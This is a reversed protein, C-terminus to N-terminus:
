TGGGKRMFGAYGSASLPNVPQWGRSGWGKVLFESDEGYLRFPTTAPSKTAFKFNWIKGKKPLFPVYVRKKVGGTSAIEYVDGTASAAGTSIIIGAQEDAQVTLQVIDTSRLSIFAGKYYHWGPLGNSTPPIEWNRLAEEDERYMLTLNYLIARQNQVNVEYSKTESFTTAINHLTRQRGAATITVAQGGVTVVPATGNEWPEVHLDLLVSSFEKFTTPIGMSLESTIVKFYPVLTTAAGTKDVYKRVPIGFAPSLVGISGWTQVTGSMGNMLCWLYEETGSSDALFATIEATGDDFALYSWTQKVPSYCFARRTQYTGKNAPAIYYRYKTPLVMYLKGRSFAVSEAVQTPDYVESTIDLGQNGSIGSIPPTTGLTFYNQIGKDSVKEVESECDTIYIGSQNILIVM